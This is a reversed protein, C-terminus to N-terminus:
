YPSDTLKLFLHSTFVATELFTNGPLMTQVKVLFVSANNFFYYPVNEENKLIAVITSWGFVKKLLLFNFIQIPFM